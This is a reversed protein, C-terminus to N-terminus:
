IEKQQQSEEWELFRITTQVEIADVLNYKPWCDQKTIELNCGRLYLDLAGFIVSDIERSLLEEVGYLEFIAKIHVKNILVSRTVYGNIDAVKARIALRARQRQKKQVETLPKERLLPRGMKKEM